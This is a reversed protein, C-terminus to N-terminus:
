YNPKLCIYNACQNSPLHVLRVQFELYVSLGTPKGIGFLYSVQDNGTLGHLLCLYVLNIEEEQLNDAVQTVDIIDQRSRQLYVRTNAFQETNGLLTVFTDTDSSVVFSYPIQRRVISPIVRTDAEEHDCELSRLQNRTLKNSRVEEPDEFMGSAVITKHHPANGILRNGLLILLSRCNEKLSLFSKLENDSCPFDLEPTVMKEVPRKRRFRKMKNPRSRAERCGDKTSPGDYRDGVVHIEDSPLNYITSNFADSFDSFTKIRETIKIKHVMFMADVVHQSDSSQVQPLSDLPAVSAKELIASVLNSKNGGRMSGDTKFISIPVSLIEHSAALEFDVNRGALKAATLRQLIRRNASVVKKETLDGPNQVVDYLNEFTPANVKSLKASFPLLPKDSGEAAVLRENMFDKVAQDGLTFADLLSSEIEQSAVDNNVLTILKDAFRGEFVHNKTLEAYLM